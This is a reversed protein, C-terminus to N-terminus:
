MANHTILDGTNVGNMIQVQLSLSGKNNHQQAAAAQNCLRKLNSDGCHLLFIRCDVNDGMRTCCRVNDNHAM